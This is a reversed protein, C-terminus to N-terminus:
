DKKKSQIPKMEIGSEDNPIEEESEQQSSGATTGIKSSGQQQQRQQRERISDLEDELEAHEQMLDTLRGIVFLLTFAFAALYLNRPEGFGYTEYTISTNNQHTSDSLSLSLSHNHWTLSLLLSWIMHEHLM